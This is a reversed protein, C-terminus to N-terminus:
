SKIDIKIKKPKVEEKKMMTVRLIGRDYSAEIKDTNVTEPLTFFRNFEGYVREVRHYNERTAENELKRSGKIQLTQGEVSIDIEKLDMEPLEAKLTISEDTEYIDVAPVWDVEEVNRTVEFPFKLLPDGELDNIRKQIASYGNFPFWKVLTM